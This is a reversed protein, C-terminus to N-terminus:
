RVGWQILKCEGYASIIDAMAADISVAVLDSFRVCKGGFDILVSFKKYDTTKM